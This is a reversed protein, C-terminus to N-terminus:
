VNGDVVWCTFACALCYAQTDVVITSDSFGFRGQMAHGLEHAMVAPGLYRVYEEGLQELLARDYAVVDCNPDYHANSAVEEPDVPARECGIGTDPYASEDIATSDVSFYGGALPQYEEGFYEPYAQSWFTDLDALANRALRDTEDDAAGTIPFEDAPVDEPVSAGRSATGSVTSACGTLLVSGVAAAAVARRLVHRM